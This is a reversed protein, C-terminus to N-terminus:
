IYYRTLTNLNKFLVIGSGESTFSQDMKHFKPILMESQLEANLVKDNKTSLGVHIKTM